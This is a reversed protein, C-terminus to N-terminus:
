LLRHFDKCQHSSSNPERRHSPGLPRDRAHSYQSGVPPAERSPSQPMGFMESGKEQKTATGASTKSQGLGQDCHATVGYAQSIM